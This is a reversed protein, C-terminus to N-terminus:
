LHLPLPHVCDLTRRTGLMTASSVHIRVAASSHPVGNYHGDPQICTKYTKALVADGTPKLVVIHSSNTLVDKTVADMYQGDSDESVPTFKVPVLDKLRLKKGSVPCLIDMSPKDPRIDSDPTDQPQWFSQVDGYVMQHTIAARTLFKAGECRVRYM